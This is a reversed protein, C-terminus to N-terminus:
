KFFLWWIILLLGIIPLMNLIVALIFSLVLAACLGIIISLTIISEKLWNLMKM